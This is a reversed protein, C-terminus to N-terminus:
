RQLICAESYSSHWRICLTTTVRLWPYLLEPKGYSTLVKRQKAQIRPAQPVECTHSNSHSTCGAPQVLWLLECISPGGSTSLLWAGSYVSMYSAGGGVIFVGHESSDSM